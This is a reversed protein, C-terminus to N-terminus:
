ILILLDFRKDPDTEPTMEMARTFYDIAEENAYRAAAQEGAKQLYYRTKEDLGAKEFHLALQVAIEDAQDDFLAELSNGVDEHLYAREAESM